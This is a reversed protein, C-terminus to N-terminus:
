FFTFFASPHPPTAGGGTQASCGTWAPAWCLGLGLGLTSRSTAPVLPDLVKSLQRRGEPEVSGERLSPMAGSCHGPSRRGKQSQRIWLAAAAPTPPAPPRRDRQAWTSLGPDGRRYFVLACELLRGGSRPSLICPRPGHQLVRCAPNRDSVEEMEEPGRGRSSLIAEGGPGGAGRPIAEVCGQAPSILGGPRSNPTPASATAGRARTIGGWHRVPRAVERRLGAQSGRPWGGGTAQPWLHAAAPRPARHHALEDPRQPGSGRVAGSRSAGLGPSGRALRPTGRAGPLPPRLIRLVNLPLALEWVWAPLHNLDSVGFSCLRRYGGPCPNPPPRPSPPSPPKM